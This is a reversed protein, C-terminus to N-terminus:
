TKFIVFKTLQTNASTYKPQTICNDNRKMSFHRPPPAEQPSVELIAETMAM